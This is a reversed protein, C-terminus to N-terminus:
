ASRQRARFAAMLAEAAVATNESTPVHFVEVEVARTGMLTRLREQIRERQTQPDAGGTEATAVIIYQERPM